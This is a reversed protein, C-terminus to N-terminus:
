EDDGWIIEDEEDDINDEAYAWVDMRHDDVCIYFEPEDYEKGFIIRRPNENGDITIQVDGITKLYIIDLSIVINYIDRGKGHFSVCLDGDLRTPIDKPDKDKIYSNWIDKVKDVLKDFEEEVVGELSDSWIAIMDTSGNEKYYEDVYKMAYEKIDASINKNFHENFIDAISKCFERETM